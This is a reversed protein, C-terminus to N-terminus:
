CYRIGCFKSSSQPPVQSQYQFDDKFYPISMREGYLDWDTDSSTATWRMKGDASSAKSIYLSLEHIAKQM